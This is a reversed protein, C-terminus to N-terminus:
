VADAGAAEGQRGLELGTDGGDASAADAGSSGGSPGQAENPESLADKSKRRKPAAAPRSAPAQAPQVFMPGLVSAIEEAPLVAKAFELGSRAFCAPGLSQPMGEGTPIITFVAEEQECVECLM